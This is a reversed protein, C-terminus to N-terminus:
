LKEIKKLLSMSHSFENNEYSKVSIMDPLIERIKKLFNEVIDIDSSDAFLLIVDKEHRLIMSAPSLLCQLKFTIYHWLYVMEENFTVLSQMIYIRGSDQYKSLLFFYEYIRYLNELPQELMFMRAPKNREYVIEALVLEYTITDCLQNYLQEATYSHGPPLILMLVSFFRNNFIKHNYLHKAGRFFPEIINGSSVFYVSHGPETDERLFRKKLFRDEAIENFDLLIGYVNKRIDAYLKESVDILLNEINFSGPINSVPKFCQNSINYSLLTCKGLNINELSKKLLDVPNSDNDISQLLSHDPLALPSKLDIENVARYYLAHLRKLMKKPTDIASIDDPTHGTVKHVLNKLDSNFTKERIKQLEEDFGSEVNNM